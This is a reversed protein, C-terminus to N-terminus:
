GAGGTEAWLRKLQPTLIGTWLEYGARTMHLGDELYLEPRPRGDEGLMADFVEAMECREQGAAFDRLLDNTERM